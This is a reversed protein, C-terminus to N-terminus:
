SLNLSPQISPLSLQATSTFERVIDQNPSFSFNTFLLALQELVEEDINSFLPIGELLKLRSKITATTPKM